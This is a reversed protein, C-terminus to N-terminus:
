FRFTIGLMWGRRTHREISLISNGVQFGIGGFGTLYNLTEEYGNPLVSVDESGIQNAESPIAIHAQEQIAAGAGVQIFFHTGLPLTLKLYAEMEPGFNYVQEQTFQIKTGIDVFDPVDDGTFSMSAGIGLGSTFGIDFGTSLIGEARLGVDWGFQFTSVLSAPIPSVEIPFDPNIPVPETTISSLQINLERSEQNKLELQNSWSEYGDQTLTLMIRGAPVSFQLPSKGVFHGNLLIQAGAPNSTVSLKAVAAAIIFQTWDSAWEGPQVTTQIIQQVKPKLEKPATSLEPFAYVDLNQQTTVDLLPIPKLLALAQLSEAGYPKNVIFSYDASPPLTHKGAKLFNNKSFGNPFLLTVKGQPNIDYIYLYADQSLDVYLVLPDKPSYTPRNALIKVTLDNPQPQVIIGEPVVKMEEQGLVPLAVLFISATILLAFCLHAKM